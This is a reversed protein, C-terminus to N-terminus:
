SPLHSRRTAMTAPSTTRVATRLWVDPSLVRVLVFTQLLGLAAAGAATTIRLGLYPLSFHRFLRGM